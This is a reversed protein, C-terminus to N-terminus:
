EAKKIAETIAAETRDGEYKKGNIFLTPTENVNRKVGEKMNGKVRASAEGNQLCASFKEGNAGVKEALTKLTADELNGSVYLVSLYTQFVEDSENRKICEAAEAARFARPHINELPFYVYRFEVEPFAKRLKEIIPHFAKCGPCQIDSFEEVFVKKSPDRTYSDEDSSLTCGSFGSLLFIGFFFVVGLLGNRNM